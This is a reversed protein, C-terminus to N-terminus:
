APCFYSFSGFFCLGTERHACKHSSNFKQILNFQQFIMGIQRRIRRLNRGTSNVVDGDCIMIEGSTSDILKNMCRLLTSKGSGSLGLLICFEGEKVTLNMGKLAHTGGAYVKHLDKIEIINNM